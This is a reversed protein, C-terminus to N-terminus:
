LRLPREPSLSLASACYKNEAQVPAAFLQTHGVNRGLQSDLSALLHDLGGNDRNVIIANNAACDLTVQSLLVPLIVAHQASVTAGSCELHELLELKAAVRDRQNSASWRM